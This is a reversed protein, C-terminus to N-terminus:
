NAPQKALLDRVRQAAYPDRPNWQNGVTRRVDGVLTVADTSAICPPTKEIREMAIGLADFLEDRTLFSTKDKSAKDQEHEIKEMAYLCTCRGYQCRMLLDLLESRGMPQALWEAHKREQEAMFASCQEETMAAPTIPPPPLKPHSM